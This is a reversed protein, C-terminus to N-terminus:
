SPVYGGGSSPDPGGVNVQGMNASGTTDIMSGNYNPLTSSTSGTDIPSSGTYGSGGTFADVTNPNIGTGNVAGSINPGVPLGGIQGTDASTTTGTATDIPNQNNIMGSTDVGATGSTGNIWNSITNGLSSGTNFGLSSLLNNAGTGLATLGAVNQIMSPTQTNTVTTPAKITGLINALDATATLPAAQEAQGLTTMASTGQTGVNGLGTAANVGTQQNTLAAQMQQSTLANQANTVATDAASVDRLSGFQGNAIAGADAPATYSPLLGKLQQDQAAFLGGMATNTNPSVAGTTANTTWPNTAGAGIAGLTGQAQTFPNTASNSLNNIATGAVTNQLAPVANAGQTAQNVVNQQAQDYWSPMTTSQSATGQTLSDLASAM